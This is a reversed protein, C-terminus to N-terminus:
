QQVGDSAAISEDPIVPAPVPVDPFEPPAPIESPPEETPPNEKKKTGVKVVRTTPSYSSKALLTRSVEVGNEKIIKYAETKTGNSGEEVIKTEGIYMTDDKIEETTYPISGTIKTEIAIDKIYKKRGYVNVTLTSGDCIVELKVPTEKNNKFEFDITGYSVTADRGLPVYSVPLSHNRRYVIELDALVVANYLTSSVQCIGGGIGDAVKNNTYVQAVKYGNAENRPGVVKNFSFVEGPNLSVSNIKESALHINTKRNASSSSYNSSFSGIITDIYEAELQAYSIEPVTIVAPVSFGENSKKNKEILKKAENKNLEIGIVEPTIVIEGDKEQVEANKPERNYEKIFSDADIEKPYVDKIEIEILEDTKGEVIADAIESLVDEASVVRGKKGPTVLLENEGIEVSYEQADSLKSGLKENIAYQLSNYDCVINLDLEAGSKKLKLMNAIKSFIMGDKGYKIVTDATGDIDAKLGFASGYIDFIVDECKIKVNIDKIDYKKALERIIDSKKMGGLYLEGIRIGEYSKDTMATGALVAFLIVSVAVIVSIASILIIKLKRKSQMEM